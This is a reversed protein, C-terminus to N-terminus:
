SWGEDNRPASPSKAIWRLATSQKEASAIVFNLPSM